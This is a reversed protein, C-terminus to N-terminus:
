WWSVLRSYWSCVAVSGQLDRVCAAEVVVLSFVWVWVLAVFGLLGELEEGVWGVM